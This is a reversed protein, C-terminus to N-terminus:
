NKKGGLFIEGKEKLKRAENEGWKRKRQFNKGGRPTEIKADRGRRKKEVGKTLMPKVKKGGGKQFEKGREL